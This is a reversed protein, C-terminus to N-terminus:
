SILVREHCRELKIVEDFLKKHNRHSIYILTKGKLFERMNQIIDKEMKEDVESLSEDLLFISAHSMLVRALMIRQKEGGSLNNEQNSILTEFRLPRKRVIENIHCIECIKTFKRLDFARNLMINDKITASIITSRQSLYVINARITKPEYDEINIGGIKIEGSSLSLVRTLIKCLTSKGCGSEGIMLVHSGEIIKLKLDKISYHYQDYSYSAKLVDIDGIIFDESRNSEMEVPISLFSNSKKLIHNLYRTKPLLSVINELANMQYSAIGQILFFDVLKIEGENLFYIGLTLFSFHIIEKLINQFYLYKQYFTEKQYKKKLYLILDREVTKSQKEKLNLYTYIDMSELMNLMQNSFNNQDEIFSREYYDSKKQSMFQFLLYFVIVIMYFLFFNDNLKYLLVISISLTGISLIWNKIVDTYLFKLNMQEQIRVYYDSMERSKFTQLPLHLLHELFSSLHLLELNKNLDKEELSLSKYGLIKIWVLITFGVFILLQETGQELFQLELKLYFPELLILCFLIIQFLILIIFSKKEKGLFHFLLLFFGTEKACSIINQKPYAIIAVESWIWFFDTFSLEKKGTSPDMLIVTGKRIEYLVMYHNLGNDLVVHVIAPLPFTEKELQEKKIRTGYADFGYQKLVEVIHFASTGRNTTYTDARIKELSAYGDYYKLVSQICCVGCDKRDHQKIIVRKLMKEGEDNNNLM